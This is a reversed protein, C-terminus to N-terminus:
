QRIKFIYSFSIAFLKIWIIIIQFLKIILYIHPLLEIPWLVQSGILNNRTRTEDVRGRCITSVIYVILLDALHSHRYASSFHLRSGTPSNCRLILRIITSISTFFLFYGLVNPLTIGYATLWMTLYLSVVLQLNVM